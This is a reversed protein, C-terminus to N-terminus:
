FAFDLIVDSAMLSAKLIGALTVSGQDDLTIRAGETADSVYRALFDDFGLAGLTDSWLYLVDAGQVFDNVTDDGFVDGFYFTDAGDGGTLQDNGSGGDLVDDGNGGSLTDHGSGGSLLDDGDGGSLSDSGSRGELVDDGGRGSLTDNGRMGVLRNDLANGTLRDAGDGTVLNEIGGSGKHDGIRAWRVGGVSITGGDSLNAAIASRITAMEIWDIGGNKDWIVGDRAGSAQATARDGDKSRALLYDRTIHHIDNRDWDDGSFKLSLNGLRGGSNGTGGVMNEVTVSWTGRANMDLAHAVGFTWTAGGRASEALGSGSDSVSQSRWLPFTLGFTTGDPARLTILVDDRDPNPTTYSLRLTVAIHEIRLSDTVAVSLRASAGDRGAFNVTRNSSVTVVDAAGEPDTGDIMQWVEALRVAAYADVRGFGYDPSYARGGDNWTDGSPTGRTPSTQFVTKGIAWDDATGTIGGTLRASTALIERVDRWSLSPDAELVLAAVGSVVPTAASTGNFDFTADGAAGSRTDYGNSGMLDTTVEAAPAAVLINSGYNSYSEVAGKRGIASVNIVEFMGNMPTGNANTGENGAALVIVTGLGGRGEAVAYRWAAAEAKATADSRQEPQFFAGEGYGWSNNAVDFNATWRLAEPSYYEYIAPDSLYNVGTLSAGWAVGVGGRGNAAAAILGSVATGHADPEEGRLTIPSPNMTVGNLRLELDARYNPALDFHTYQLGDDFVGVRIGRGTYDNWITEIDGLLRFHWQKSFLPDSVKVMRHM